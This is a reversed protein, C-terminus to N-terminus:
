IRCADCEHPFHLHATARYARIGKQHVLMCRCCTGNGWEFSTSAKMAMMKLSSVNTTDLALTITLVASRITVSPSNWRPEASTTQTIIRSM